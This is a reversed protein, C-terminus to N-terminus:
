RKRKATGNMFTIWKGDEGLIQSSTAIEDKSKFEYIDRFKPMVVLMIFSVIGVALTVVVGPYIMASRVKGIIAQRRELHVALSDLITELVGGVEGARVMNVYLRDFVRPHRAIADSLAHGREIEAAMDGIIEKLVVSRAQRQLIVLSRQIPLGADLLTALQRTFNALHRCTVRHFIHRIVPLATLDPSGTARRQMNVDLPYYGMNRLREIVVDEGTAEVVGRLVKGGKDLAEYAYEGM